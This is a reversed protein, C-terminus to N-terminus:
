REEVSQPQPAHPRRALLPDQRGDPLLAYTEARLLALALGLPIRPSDRPVCRPCGDFEFFLGFDGCIPCASISPACGIM